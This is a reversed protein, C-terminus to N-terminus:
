VDGLAAVGGLLRKQLYNYRDNQWDAMKCGM